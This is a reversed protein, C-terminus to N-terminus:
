ELAILNSLGGAVGTIEVASVPLVFGEAPNTFTITQNDITLVSISPLVSFSYTLLANSALTGIASGAVTLTIKDPNIVTVTVGSPIGPGGVTMGVQIRPDPSRLTLTQGGTVAENNQIAIPTPVTGIYLCYQKWNSQPITAKVRGDILQGTVLSPVIGGKFAETYYNRIM